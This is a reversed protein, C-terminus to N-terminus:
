LCKGRCFNCAIETKKRFRRLPTLGEELSGSVRQKGKCAIKIHSEEAPDGQGTESSSGDATTPPGPADLLVSALLPSVFDDATSIGPPVHSSTSRLYAQNHAPEATVSANPIPREYVRASPGDSVVTYPIPISSLCSPSPEELM